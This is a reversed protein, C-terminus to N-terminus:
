TRLRDLGVPAPVDELRPYLGAAVGAALAAGRAGAEAVAPWELRMRVLRAAKAERLRASWAWGGALVVREVPGDFPAVRDILEQGDAAVEDVAATWAEPGTRDADVLGLGLDDLVPQLALGLGQAGVLAQCGPVVHCDVTLGAEVARRVDGPELPPVARMCAEATGCSDFVDAPALAGCGVAAAGHDLGVVTLVAGALPGEAATGIPMAPEVLEPLLGDPAGAWALADPWWGGGTVDMFGSRSALSPSAVPAAGLRHAVWEAVGLWRVAGAAVPDHDRLWRYKVASLLPAAPRGARAVMEDGLRARLDDAEERGRGDHWAIAPAAVRGHRDLLVGTEAFSSIGCALVTRARAEAFAHGIAQLAADLLAEPDAEAGTPVVRWPTTAQGHGVERGEPTVAAAKVSSTGV